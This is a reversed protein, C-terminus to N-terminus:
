VDNITSIVTINRGKKKGQYMAEDAANVCDNFSLNVQCQCIGFTCTVPITQDNISIETKEIEMRIKEILEFAENSKKNDLFFIFEEGGWRALIDEKSIISRMIHTIRKLVEDGASHSYVDNINKFKDVDSIVICCTKIESRKKKYNNIFGSRNYLGTLFDTQSALKLQKNLKMLESTRNKVESELIQNQKRIKYTRYNHFLLGLFLGVLVFVVRVWGLKWWVPHVVLKLKLFQENWRGDFNIARIEIKYDGANLNNLEIYRTSTTILWDDHLGATRYSYQIQESTKFDLAAFRFSISRDNHDLDFELDNNVLEGFPLSQNNVQVDTLKLNPQFSKTENLENPNFTYYGNASGFYLLDNKDITSSRSNLGDNRIGTNLVYNNFESKEPTFKSIGFKYTIWLNQKSDELISNVSNDLLGDSVTYRKFSKDEENFLNLGRYTALWVRGKSDQYIDKIRNSSISKENNFDHAFLEFENKEVKYCFVGILNTGIWINNSADQFIHVINIDTLPKGQYSQILKAESTLPNWRLVGINYLAMWIEGNSTEEVSFIDTPKIGVLDFPETIFEAVVTNNDLFFLGESSGIWTGNNRSHKTDRIIGPINNTDKTIIRDFKNENNEKYLTESTGLYLKDESDNDLSWIQKNRENKQDSTIYNSHHQFLGGVQDVKIIGNDRTALWLLGSQDFFINRIDAHQLAQWYDGNDDLKFSQEKMNFQFLGEMSAILLQDDKMFHIDNIKMIHMSTHTNFIKTKLNFSYLGTSSGIWLYEDTIFLKRFQNSSMDITLEAPLKYNQIEGTKTNLQSLGASTGIWINGDADGTINWVRSHILSNSDNKDYDYHILEQGNLHYLGTATGIWMTSNLDEYFTQVNESVMEDIKSSSYPFRILEGSNLNLTNVGGGFTGIWMTNNSDIFINGANNNSITAPDAGDHKFVKFSYGDFRALGNVTGFWMFGSQDQQLSFVTSDPLGDELKIEEVLWQNPTSSLASTTLFIFVIFLTKLSIFSTDSLLSRKFQSSKILKFTM